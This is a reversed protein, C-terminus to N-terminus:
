QKKTRFVVLKSIFYNAVIVAINAIIKIINQRFGMLDICIFLMLEELGLSALRGAFFMSAEKVIEKAGARKSHFVLSRNTVFAFTVAVIWAIINAVHHNMGAINALPFFVLWNVLTTMVGWFLYSIPEKYKEFLEATKKLGLKVLISEIM